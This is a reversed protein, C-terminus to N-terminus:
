CTAGRDPESAWGTADRQVRRAEYEVLQAGMAQMQDASLDIGRMEAPLEIKLHLYRAGIEVITAVLQIPLTGIVIDGPRVQAANLHPVMQAALGQRKAWETAGRHRSVFYVAVSKGGSLVETASYLRQQVVQYHRLSAPACSPGLYYM